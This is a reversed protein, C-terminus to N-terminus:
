VMFLVNDVFPGTWLFNTVKGVYSLRAPTQFISNCLVSIMDGTCNVLLTHGIVMGSSLMEWKLIISWSLLYTGLSALFAM